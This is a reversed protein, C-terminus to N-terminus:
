FAKMKRLNSSHGCKRKRCNTAKIALKAGCGRCIKRDCRYKRALELLAPPYAKFDGRGGGCMSLNVQVTANQLVGASLLSQKGQALPKNPLSLIQAEAPIGCKDQLTDKLQAVSSSESVDIALTQQNPIAVFIQM